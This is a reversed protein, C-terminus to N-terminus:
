IYNRSLSQNSIAKQFLNKPSQKLNAKKGVISAIDSAYVGVAGILQKETIRWKVQNWAIRKQLLKEGVLRVSSLYKSIYFCFVAKTLFHVMGGSITLVIFLVFVVVDDDDVM